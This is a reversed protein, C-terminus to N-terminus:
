SAKWLWMQAPQAASYNKIFAVAGYESIPACAVGYASSDVTNASLISATLGKSTWQSGSSADPDCEYWVSSSNIVSLKGNVPNCFPIANPVGPGTTNTIATPIDDLATITGSSNMKWLKRSGNGGGFVVCAKGILYICFCHPGGTGALTSSSGDVHTTVAGTTPNISVLGGNSGNELQYVVVRGMEPFFETGATAESYFLQGAYSLTDWTTGSAWRRVERVGYPRHFLKGNINDYTTGDYGHSTTGGAEIGWPVSAAEEAWANTAEDYTIFLTEAGHDCGIFYIKKGSTNRAIKTCYAIALGSSGVQGTFLSLGTAGTVQAWQGSSLAAAQTALATGGGGGSAAAQVRRRSGMMAAISLM